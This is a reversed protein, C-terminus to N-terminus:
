QGEGPLNSRRLSSGGRNRRQEKIDRDRKYEAEVVLAAKPSYTYYTWYYRARASYTYIIAGLLISSLVAQCATPLLRIATVFDHSAFHYYYGMAPASSVVIGMLGALLVIQTMSLNLTAKEKLKITADPDSPPSQVTSM